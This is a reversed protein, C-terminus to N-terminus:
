FGVRVDILPLWHTRTGIAFKAYSMLLSAGIHWDDTIAWGVAASGEIAYAGDVEQVPLYWYTGALEYDLSAPLGGTLNLNASPVLPANLSAFRQYLFPFDLLVPTATRPAVELGGRATLWQDQALRYTVLLSSDLMLAQPVPEDPPLLGLTGEKAILNQFLSPYALGHQSSLHWRGSDLWRKKVSVHPLAFFWLPHLRIELCDCFAIAGRSFLGIELRDAAITLATDNSWRAHVREEGYASAPFASTVLTTTVMAAIFLAATFSASRPATNRQEPLQMVPTQDLGEGTM